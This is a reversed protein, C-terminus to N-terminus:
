KETVEEDGGDAAVPRWVVGSDIRNVRKRIRVMLLGTLAMLMGHGLWPGAVEALGRGLSSLTILGDSPPFVAHLAMGFTIVALSPVAVLMGITAVVRAFDDFSAVYESDIFTHVQEPVVEQYLKVLM